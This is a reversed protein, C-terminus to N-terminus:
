HGALQGLLEQLEVMGFPKALLSVGSHAELLDLADQDALGTALLVPLDPRLARLPGLTGAGGIGPMNLDLIVVDAPFGQELEALAAEGCNATRVTHGLLEILMRCAKLVLEDDDVLLVQLSGGAAPVPGPAPQGPEAPGVWAPFRMRVCTGRGPESTLELTGHHAKVTSYVMSLGLGTGKGTAKTTFFPDLARALVEPSM